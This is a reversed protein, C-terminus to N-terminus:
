YKLGLQNFAINFRNMWTHEAESRKRAAEKMRIIEADSAKEIIFHAKDLLEEPTKYMLIEKGDEFYDELEKFYRCIQIGGAMPVEFTRLFTRGLPHKLIDSSETSTYSIALAYHSYFKIMDDFSVSPRIAVNDNIDIQPKSKIRNVLSSYVLKRGEKSRLRRMYVTGASPTPIHYNVKIEETKNAIQKTKDKGFYLDIPINGQSLMNIMLARSGYPNGIFCAKRNIPGQEYKYVFPNAAFPAFMTKAGWRDYLPKTEVSTLWVLDFLPSLVKDNYPMSLNDSRFSLSPIGMKKIEKITDVYIHKESCLNTFFLDYKSSKAKELVKENAEEIDRFLLPNFIEFTIGHRSLEDIFHNTQWQMMPSSTEPFYYLIKM